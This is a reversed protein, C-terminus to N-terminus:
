KLIGMELSYLSPGLCEVESSLYVVLEVMM